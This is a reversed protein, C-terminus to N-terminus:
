PTPVKMTFLLYAFILVQVATLVGVSLYGLYNIKETYKAALLVLLHFALLILLTIM